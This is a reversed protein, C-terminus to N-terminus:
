EIRRSLKKGFSKQDLFSRSKSSSSSLTSPSSNPRLPGTGPIEWTGTFASQAPLLSLLDASLHATSRQPIPGTTLPTSTTLVTTLQGNNLEELIKFIKNEKVKREKTKSKLIPALLGHLEIAKTKADFAKCRKQYVELGALFVQGERSKLLLALASKNGKQPISKTLM